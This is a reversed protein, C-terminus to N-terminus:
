LTTARKFSLGGHPPREFDLGDIGDLRQYSHGQAKRWWGFLGMAGLGSAFLPLAAPLPATSVSAPDGPDFQQLSPGLNFNDDSSFASDFLTGPSSGGGGGGGGGGLLAAALSQGSALRAGFAGSNGGGGGGGESRSNTCKQPCKDKYSLIKALEDDLDYIDWASLYHNRFVEDRTDSSKTVAHAPQAMLVILASAAVVCLYKPDLTTECLKFLASSTDKYWLVPSKRAPIAMVFLADQSGSAPKDRNQRRDSLWTKPNSSLFKIIKAM